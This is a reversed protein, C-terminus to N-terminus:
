LDGGWHGATPLAAVAATTRAVLRSIERWVVSTSPIWGSPRSVTIWKGVPCSGQPSGEENRPRLADVNDPKVVVYMERRETQPFSVAYLEDTKEDSKPIIDRVVGGVSAATGAGSITVRTGVTLSSAQRYSFIAVAFLNKCNVLTALSDGASVYRGPAASIHLVELPGPSVLKIKQLSSVRAQEQRVLTSASDLAAKAEKEEIAKASADFAVDRRKQAIAAIGILDDGIFVNSRLADLQTTLAALQASASLRHSDAAALQQSVPKVMGASVEGHALLTVEQDHIAKREGFSAQASGADAKLAAVKDSYQKILQAKEAAIEQDLVAIYHHDAEYEARATEYAQRLTDYRSKLNMLTTQDVRTNSVEALPASAAMHTGVSASVSSVEGPIPTTLLSVPADLIARDSQDAVIPPLAATLLLVTLTGAVPYAAAKIIRSHFRRKREIQRDARVGTFANITTEPM